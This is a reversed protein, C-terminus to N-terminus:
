ESSCYALRSINICKSQIKIIGLTLEGKPNVNYVDEYDQQIESDKGYTEYIDSEFDKYRFAGVGPQYKSNSTLDINSLSKQRWGSHKGPGSNSYISGGSNSKTDCIRVRDVYNSVCDSNRYFSSFLRNLSM